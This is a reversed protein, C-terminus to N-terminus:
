RRRRWGILGAVLGCVLLTISGPEPISAVRFGIDFDEYAPDESYRFSAHLNDVPGGFDGGRLGRYPFLGIPTENWELLNGGQDFTGYASDSPKADYAGV